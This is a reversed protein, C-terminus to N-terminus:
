GSCEMARDLGQDDPETAAHGPGTVRCGPFLTLHPGAEIPLGPDAPLGVSGAAALFEAIAMEAIRQVEPARSVISERSVGVAKIWVETGHELLRFRLRCNVPEGEVTGIFLGEVNWAEHV